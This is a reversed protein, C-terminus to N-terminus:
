FKWKFVQLPLFYEMLNEGFGVFNECNSGCCGTAMFYEILECLLATLQGM